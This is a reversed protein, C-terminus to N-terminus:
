DEGHHAQRHCNPCLAEANAVVDLGGAALPVRHHVELYPTKDSRRVFPAPEKCRECHGGARLLVEAVVDPDRLFTWSSVQVRRAVGSSLSLRRARESPRAGLSARVQLEFNQQLAEANLTLSVDETDVEIEDFFSDCSRQVPTRTRRDWGRVPCGLVSFKLPVLEFKHCSLPLKNRMADFRAYQPTALDYNTGSAVIGAVKYIAFVKDNVVVIVAQIPLKLDRYFDYRSGVPQIASYESVTAGCQTLQEVSENSHRLLMIADVPIGTEKSALEALKM